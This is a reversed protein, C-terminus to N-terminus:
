DTQGGSKTLSSRKKHGGNQTKKKESGGVGVARRPEAAGHAGLEANAFVRKRCKSARMRSMGATM